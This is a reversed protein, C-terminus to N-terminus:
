PIAGEPSAVQGHQAAHAYGAGRPRVRLSSNLHADSAGLNAEGTARRGLDRGLRELGAVRPISSARSATLDAHGLTTLIRWNRCVGRM